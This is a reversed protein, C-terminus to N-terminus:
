NRHKKAPDKKKASSKRKTTRARRQLVRLSDPSTGLIEAAESRSLGLAELLNAQQALDKDRLDAECLCLFALSRGIVGLWETEDESKKATM